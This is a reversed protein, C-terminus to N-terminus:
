VLCYYDYLGNYPIYHMINIKNIKKNNIEKKYM